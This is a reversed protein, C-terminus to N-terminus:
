EKIIASMSIPNWSQILPLIQDIQPADITLALLEKDYQYTTTILDLLNLSQSIDQTFKITIINM